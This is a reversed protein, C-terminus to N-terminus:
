VQNLNTFIVIIPTSNEPGQFSKNSIMESKPMDKMNIVTNTSSLTAVVLTLCRNRLVALVRAARGSMPGVSDGLGLM